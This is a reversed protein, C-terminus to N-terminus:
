ASHRLPHPISPRYARCFSRTMLRFRGGHIVADNRIFKIGLTFGANGDRRENGLVQGPNRIFHGSGREERLDCWFTLEIHEFPAHEDRVIDRREIASEDAPFAACFNREFLSRM